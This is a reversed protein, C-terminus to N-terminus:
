ATIYYRNKFSQINVTNKETSSLPLNVNLSKLLNGNSYYWDGDSMCIIGVYNTMDTYRTVLVASGDNTEFEFETSFNSILPSNEDFAVSINSIGIEMISPVNLLEYNAEIETQGSHVSINSYEHFSSDYQVGVMGGNTSPTHLTTTYTSTKSSDNTDTVTVTLFNAADLSISINYINGSTMPIVSTKNDSNHSIRNSLTNEFVYVCSFASGDGSQIAVAIFEDPNKYRLYTYFSSTGGQRKDGCLETDVTIDYSLKVDSVDGYGSLILPQSKCMDSTFKEIPNKFARAVLNETVEWKGIDNTFEVTQTENSKIELNYIGNKSANKSAAAFGIYSDKNAVGSLTVNTERTNNEDALDATKVKLADGDLTIEVYYRGGKKMRCVNTVSDSAYIRNRSDNFGNKYVYLSSFNNPQTTGQINVAIFDDPSVYNLLATINVIGSDNRVDYCEVAKFDFSLTVAGQTKEIDNFVVYSADNNSAKDIEIGDAAEVTSVDVGMNDDVKTPSSFEIGSSLLPKKISLKASQDHTKFLTDKRIDPNYETYNSGDETKNYDTYLVKYLEVDCGNLMGFAIKGENTPFQSIVGTYGIFDNLAICIGNDKLHIELKNASKPTIDGLLCNNLVGSAEKTEWGWEGGLYTIAVYNGDDDLRTIFKIKGTEVEKSRLSFYTTLSFDKKLPSKEAVTVGYSKSSLSIAKTVMTLESVPFEPNGLDIEAKKASQFEDGSLKEECYEENLEPKYVVPEEGDNSTIILDSIEYDGATHTQFGAYGSSQTAGELAFTGIYQGDIYLICKGDEELDVKFHYTTNFYLQSCSALPSGGVHDYIHRFGNDSFQIEIGQWDDPSNYRTVIAFHAYSDNGRKDDTGLIKVKAEFSGKAFKPSDKDVFVQRANTKVKVGSKLFSINNDPLPRVVNMTVNSSKEFENNFNELNMQHGNVTASIVEICSAFNALTAFGVNGEGSPLVVGANQADNKINYNEVFSTGNVWGSVKNDELKYRLTVTDDINILSIGRNNMGTIRKGDGDLLYFDNCTYAAVQINAILAANSDDKLIVSVNAIGGFRDDYNQKLKFTVEYDITDATIEKYIATSIQQDSARDVVLYPAVSKTEETTWGGYETGTSFDDSFVEAEEARLLKPLMSFMSFILSGVLLYSLIKKNLKM